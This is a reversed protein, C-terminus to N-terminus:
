HLVQFPVRNYNLLTKFTNPLYWSEFTYCSKEADLPQFPSSELIFAPYVIKYLRDAGREYAQISLASGLNVVQISLCRNAV